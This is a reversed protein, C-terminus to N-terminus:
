RHPRAVVKGFVDGSDCGRSRTARGDSFGYVDLRDGAPRGAGRVADLLAALETRRAWRRASSRWSCPSSGACTSRRGPPRRDRRLGRDPRGAGACKLSHDFTAAGVTEIVVDVREPLRAGPEVATAGLAAIRERKAPTAAPRTCGSASRSARARGGRDGRRRRRGAGAGVRGRRGPGPHHADPVRDALGDAPLGRRRLSLAPRSPCWTRRAARRGARRAHGPYRESLLSFGRPDGPDLVVPYVVVENGDPDVGAADCGLIMPLRDAPLGVGRLSWLDHHNLSSARVEVTM